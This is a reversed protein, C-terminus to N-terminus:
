DVEVMVENRRLVPLTFPADYGAFWVESRPSLGALKALFVLENRKHAPMDGAYRGRFRLAAVRREPVPVVRVRVDDPIPLERFTLGGPMVFDIQRLGVAM